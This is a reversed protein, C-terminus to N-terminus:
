LAGKKHKELYEIIEVANYAAGKRIQDGCCWLCIGKPDTLDRRIRGVFVQNQDSSDLPTPLEDEFLKVGPFCAIAEKVKDLDLEEQCLVRISISHSRYVPVRVCTCSVLLEDLHLIKRGENQMKMEESTYDNDLYSGIQAVCNYAIQKVFVEPDTKENNRIQEIQKELEEIGKNGAGSVAQFTTAVMSSIRSLSNIPAVAMLSIITSCNPNAIIGKHKLADIGNIEPVVLPVDKDSRFASSNDVYVAGTKKILEYYKKSLENSVAGLVYDLGQLNNDNADKIEIDNGNFSIAKGQSSASAFLRLEEVNLDSEELCKIMQRGVAGTAGLIGIKM